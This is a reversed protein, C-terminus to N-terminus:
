ADCVFTYDRNERVMCRVPSALGRASINALSHLLPFDVTLLFEADFHQTLLFESLYIPPVESVHTVGSLSLEQLSGTM